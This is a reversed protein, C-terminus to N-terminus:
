GPPSQSTVPPKDPQATPPTTTTTTGPSALTGPAVPATSVVPMPQVGAQGPTYIGVTEPRNVAPGPLPPAPPTPLQQREPFKVEAPMRFAESEKGPSSATSNSRVLNENTIPQSTLPHRKGTRNAPEATVTPTATVATVHPHQPQYAAKGLVCPDIKTTTDFFENILQSVPTGDLMTVKSMGAATKEVRVVRGAVLCNLFATAAPDGSPKVGDLRLHSDRGDIKVTIEGPSTAGVGLAVTAAQSAAAVSLSLLAIAIPKM